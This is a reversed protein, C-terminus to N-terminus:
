NCNRAARYGADEAEQRTAFWVINREAIDDYNRCGPLHYIRSSKNGKITKKVSETQTQENRASIYGYLFFGGCAILATLASVGFILWFSNKSETVPVLPVVEEAETALDNPVTKDKKM